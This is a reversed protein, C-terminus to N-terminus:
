VGVIQRMAEGGGGEGGRGEGRRDQEGDQCVEFRNTEASIASSSEPFTAVMEKGFGFSRVLKSTAM